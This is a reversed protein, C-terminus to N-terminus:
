ISRYGTKNFDVIQGISCHRVFENRNCSEMQIARCQRHKHMERLRNLAMTSQLAYNNTFPQTFVHGCASSLKLPTKPNGNRIITSGATYTCSLVTYARSMLRWSFGLNSGHPCPSSPLQITTAGERRGERERERVNGGIINQGTLWRVSGRGRRRCYSPTTIM